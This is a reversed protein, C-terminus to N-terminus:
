KLKTVGTAVFRIEELPETIAMIEEESKEADEALHRLEEVGTVQRYAVGEIVARNGDFDLPVFFEYDKFTVKVVEETDEGKVDMWCGKKKCVADVEVLVKAMLSDKGELQAILEGVSIANDPTVAAGFSVTDVEIIVEEATEIATEGASDTSGCSWLLFVVLLVSIFYLKKMSIFKISKFLNAAFTIMNWM